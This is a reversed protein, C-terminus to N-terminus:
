YPFYPYKKHFQNLNGLKQFILYQKVQMPKFLLILYKLYYNLFFHFLEYFEQYLNMKISLM